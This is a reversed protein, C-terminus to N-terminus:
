GNPTRRHSGYAIDTEVRDDASFRFSDKVRDGGGLAEVPPECGTRGEYFLRSSSQDEAPLVPTDLLKGALDNPIDNVKAPRVLEYKAPRDIGTAVRCRYSDVDFGVRFSGDNPQDLSHEFIAFHAGLVHEITSRAPRLCQGQHLDPDFM